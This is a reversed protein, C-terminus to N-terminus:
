LLFKTGTNKKAFGSQTCLRKKTMKYCIQIPQGALQDLNKEGDLNKQKNEDLNIIFEEM